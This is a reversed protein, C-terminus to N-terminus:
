RLDSRGEYSCPDDEFEDWLEEERLQNLLKKRDKSAIRQHYGSDDFLFDARKRRIKDQKETMVKTKKM